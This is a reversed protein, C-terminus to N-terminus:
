GRASQLARAIEGVVTDVETDAFNGYGFVIGERPLDGARGRRQGVSCARLDLLKIGRGALENVVAEGTVGVPLGMLVHLGAAAGFLKCQPLQRAVSRM